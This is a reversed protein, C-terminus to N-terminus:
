FGFRNAVNDAGSASSGQSQVDDAAVSLSEMTPFADDLGKSWNKGVVARARIRNGAILRNGQAMSKKEMLTVLKMLDAKMVPSLDGAILKYGKNMLKDILGLPEQFIEREADSLQSNSGSMRALYFGLTALGVSSPDNSELLARVQVASSRAEVLAKLGMNKDPMSNELIAAYDKYLAPAAVRLNTLANKPDNKDGGIGGIDGVPNAGKPNTKFMGGGISDNLYKTEYGKLTGAPATEWQQTKENKVEYDRGNWRAVISDGAANSLTAPSYKVGEGGAGVMAKHIQESVTSNVFPTGDPSRPTNLPLLRDMGEQGYRATLTSYYNTPDIGRTKQVGFLKLLPNSSPGKIGLGGEETEVLQRGYNAAPSAAPAPAGQPQQQIQGPQAQQPLPGIEQMIRQIAEQPNMKDGPQLQAAGGRPDIAQGGSTPQQGSRQMMRFLAEQDAPSIRSQDFNM